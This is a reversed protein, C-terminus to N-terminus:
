VLMEKRGDASSLSKIELIMPWSDLLNFFTDCCLMTKCLTVSLHALVSLIM